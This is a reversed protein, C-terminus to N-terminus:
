WVTRAEPATAGPTRYGGGSPEGGTVAPEVRGGPGDAISREAWRALMPPWLEVQRRGLVLQQERQDLPSSPHLGPRLQQLGHPLRLGVDLGARHVHVHLTQAGLQTVGPLQDLRHAPEAIAELPALSPHAARHGKSLPQYDARQKDENEGHCYEEPSRLLRQPAVQFAVDSPCQFVLCRQNALRERGIREAHPSATGRKACCFLCRIM